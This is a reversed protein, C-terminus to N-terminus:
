WFCPTAQGYAQGRIGWSDLLGLELVNMEGCSSSSLQWFPIHQQPVCTVLFFILVQPKVSSWRFRYKRM